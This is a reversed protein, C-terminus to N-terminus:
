IHTWSIRNVIRHMQAKSINYEEALCYQFIDEEKYRRRIEIVKKETLKSSPSGEGTRARSWSDSQRKKVESIDLIGEHIHSWVKGLIIRAVTGKGVNYKKAIKPQSIKGEKYEKRIAIIDSETLKSISVNEGKPTRAKQLKVRRKTIESPSMIGERIHAWSEGNIIISIQHNSVGYKRALQPQSINEEKYQRRIELVDFENLKANPNGNGTYIESKRQRDEKSMKLGFVGDGGGTMNLGYPKKTKLSLIYQREKECAEEWSDAYDLKSSWFNEKSYKRITNCLISRVGKKADNWHEALRREFNATIGIYSKKNAKCYIRYVTVM